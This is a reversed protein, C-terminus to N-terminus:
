GHINYYVTELAKNAAINLIKMIAEPAKRLDGRIENLPLVIMNGHTVAKIDYKHTVPGTVWESALM